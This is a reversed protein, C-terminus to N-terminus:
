TISLVPEHRFPPLSLSKHGRREQMEPGRTLDHCLTSSRTAQSVPGESLSGDADPCFSLKGSINPQTELVQKVAEYLLQTLVPIDTLLDRGSFTKGKGCPTKLFFFFFGRHEYKEM